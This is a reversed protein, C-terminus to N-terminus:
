WVYGYNDWNQREQNDFYVALILRSLRLLNDQLPSDTPQRNQLLLLRSWDSPLAGFPLLEETDFSKTVNLETVNM